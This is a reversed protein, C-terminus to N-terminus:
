MGRQALIEEALLLDGPATIKLNSASGEVMKVKGGQMELLCADDTGARLIHDEQGYASLLADWRFVQPTQARWLRNRDPTGTIVGASDVEKVTDSSPIGLVIGDLGPDGELAATARQVEECTVLPRAGDHVGVLDWRGAAALTELGNRVSFAREEGGPIVAVVKNGLPGEKLAQLDDVRDANVVVAVADVSECACLTEVTRQVVPIGALLAYQKPVDAEFRVGRGAASVM